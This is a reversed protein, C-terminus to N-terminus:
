KEQFGLFTFRQSTDPFESYHESHVVGQADIYLLIELDMHEGTDDTLILPIEHRREHLVIGQPDEIKEILVADLRGKEAEPPDRLTMSVEDTPHMLLAVLDGAVPEGVLDDVPLVRCPELFVHGPGLLDQFVGRADRDDAVPCGGVGDRVLGQPGNLDKLIRSEEVVRADKGDVMAIRKGNISWVLFNGAKRIKLRYKEGAVLPQIKKSFNDATMVRANSPLEDHRLVLGGDSLV